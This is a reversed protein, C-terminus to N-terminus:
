AGEIKFRIFNKSRTKQMFSEFWVAM